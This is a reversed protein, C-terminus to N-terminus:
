DRSELRELRDELSELRRKLTKNESELKTNLDRLAEVTLAEFGRYTVNLYGSNSTKVWDPFVKQIDQAIMGTQSGKLHGHQSPDKWEYTVGELSLLKDLAGEIPAINKKLRKDSYSTWSGGGPKAAAGNVYLKYSNDIAADIAM